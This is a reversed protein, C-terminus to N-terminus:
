RRREEDIARAILWAKRDEVAKRERREVDRVTEGPRRAALLRDYEARDAATWRGLGTM